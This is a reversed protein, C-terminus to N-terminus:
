RFFLGFYFFPEFKKKKKKKIERWSKYKTLYLNNGNQDM